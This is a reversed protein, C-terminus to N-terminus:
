SAQLSLAKATTTHIHHNYYPISQSTISFPVHANSLTPNRTGRTQEDNDCTFSTIPLRDISNVSSLKYGTIRIRYASAFARASHSSTPSLFCLNTGLM